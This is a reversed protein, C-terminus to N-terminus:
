LIRLPQASLPFDAFFSPVSLHPDAANASGATIRPHLQISECHNSGHAAIVLTDEPVAFESMSFNSLAKPSWDPSGSEETRSGSAVETTSTELQNGSGSSVMTSSTHSHKSTFPSSDDFFVDLKSEILMCPSSCQADLAVECHITVENASASEDLARKSSLDAVAEEGDSNMGERFHPSAHRKARWNRCLLGVWFSFCVICFCGIVLVININVGADPSEVGQSDMGQAIVPRPVVLTSRKTTNM